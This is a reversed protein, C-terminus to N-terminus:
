LAQANERVQEKCNAFKNSTDANRCTIASVGLRAATFPPNILAVLSTLHLTGTSGIDADADEGGLQGSVIGNDPIGQYAPPGGFSTKWVNTGFTLWSLSTFATTGDLGITVAPESSGSALFLPTNSFAISASAGMPRTASVTSSLMSFAVAMVFLAVLGYRMRRGGGPQHPSPLHGDFVKRSSRFMAPVPSHTILFSLM